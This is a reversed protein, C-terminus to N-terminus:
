LKRVSPLDAGSPSPEDPQWLQGWALQSRGLAPLQRGEHQSISPGKSTPPRIAEPTVGTLNLVWGFASGFAAGILLTPAFIGGSGYSGLSVRTSVMKGIVFASVIPSLAETSKAHRILNM